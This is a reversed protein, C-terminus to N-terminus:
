DRDRRRRSRVIAAVIHWATRLWLAGHCEFQFAACGCNYLIWNLVVWRIKFGFIADFDHLPRIVRVEVLWVSSEAIKHFLSFPWVWHNPNTFTTLNYTAWCFISPYWKQNMSQNTAENHKRTEIQFIQVLLILLISIHNCSQFSCSVLLQFLINFHKINREYM